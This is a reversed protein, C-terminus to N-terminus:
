LKSHQWKLIKPKVVILSTEIATITLLYLPFGAEDSSWHTISLLTLTAAIGAGLYAAVSESEPHSWSKKITPIGAALDAAIALFIALTPNGAFLLALTALVSLAGCAYDFPGIKWKSKPNVFSGVFILMPLFGTMFTTISRLGVGARLEAVFAVLPALSWLIWTVRNPQTRGLLTDRLYISSGVFGFVVGVYVFDVSIM